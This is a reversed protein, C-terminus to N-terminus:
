KKIEKAIKMAEELAKRCPAVNVDDDVGCNDIYAALEEELYKIIYNIDGM